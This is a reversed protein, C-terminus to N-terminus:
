ANRCIKTGTLQYAMISAIMTENHVWWFKMDHWYEQVPKGDLDVFYLLGGHENDWARNWNWELIKCGLHIWSENKQLAGEQMIFWATEIAHGPNLLRGDYHDSISGDPTVQEM